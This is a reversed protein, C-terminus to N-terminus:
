RLKRFSLSGFQRENFSRAMTAASMMQSRRGIPRFTQAAPLLAIKQEAFTGPNSGFNLTANQGRTETAM